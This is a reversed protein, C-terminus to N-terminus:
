LDRASEGPLAPGPRPALAANSILASIRQACFAASRAAASGGARHEEDPVRQAPRADLHGEARDRTAPRVSIEILECRAEVPVSAPRGGRKAEDLAARVSHAAFRDRWKRVTEETLGHLRGIEANGLGPAAKLVISAKGRRAARRESSM